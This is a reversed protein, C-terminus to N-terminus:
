LPSVICKYPRTNLVLGFIPIMDIEEIPIFRYNLLLSGLVLFIETRALGEGVCQRKGMGFAIMRETAKKNVTKGDEELFREPRFEEPNEFIPDDKLVSFIQPFTLTDKPIFKDGIMTDETCRHFFVFSIMNAVRQLEAIASVFLPLRPKDAMEIRRERGVVSLLEDRMREQKEPNQMLILLAWKLSTSTTEMGAMWFDVVVAHLNEMNLGKNKEMEALYAQVFNTPENDLHLDEAVKSVEEQIFKQYQAVNELPEKFGKDGILPINKAWPWAQVILVFFNDKLNRLHKTVVSNFYEFRETDTYEFHYGFLTENIVNGICLQLPMNMDFPTVGDNTAKLQRMMEDISRNIQAEMLNKGLGLERLIRLSVRRQEKWVEGDSILVGTQDHMQLLTEPPLQSRGSFSDAQTVLSEKITDFTTFMVTPRPLFLTFCGNRDKIFVHNNRLCTVSVHYLNGIIPLPFPGKPYRRVNRYFFIVYLVVFIAFFYPIM